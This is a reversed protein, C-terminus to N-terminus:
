ENLQSDYTLSYNQYFNILNQNLLLRLFYAKFKKLITM